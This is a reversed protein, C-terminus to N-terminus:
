DGLPGAGKVDVAVKLLESSLVLGAKKAIPLNVAFRVRNGEWVFQMMGGHDNFEPMDSVTLVSAGDLTMLIQKLHKQESASIFLIQCQGADELKEIKKTKINRGAITKDELIINLAQGFPDRGLVCISFEEQQSSDPKPPWEIFRSFNYLYVAKLEYETPNPVQAYAFVSSVFVIMGGFVVVALRLSRRAAPIRWAKQPFNLRSKAM